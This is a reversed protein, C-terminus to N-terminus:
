REDISPEVYREGALRAIRENLRSLRHVGSIHDVAMQFARESGIICLRGKARTMATYILNRQLLKFHHTAIALVVAPFESGQSKHVSISWALTLNDLDDKEYRVSRMDYAVTVTGKHTDIEEIVGVDGNFVELDYNNRTQMVKEGVYLTTKGVRVHNGRGSLREQIAANIAENGLTGRHTPCLIQIDRIPDLGFAKPMRDTVVKVVTRLADEPDDRRIFFYEGEPHSPINPLHGQRVDHSAVVISSAEGQRFIRNLNASPVIQSRILEAFVEGAGVPPLQDADGVFLIQTGPSVARMLCCGLYQDLMSSEDIIILDCELPSVRDRLFGRERPDYELLRHITSADSGTSESLRYAARGTPAALLVRAKHYQAHAVLAKIITTKGTGPGGTLVSLPHSSVTRLAREQEESLAFPFLKRLRLLAADDIPPLPIDAHLVDHILSATEYEEDFRRRTYIADGPGAGGQDRILRGDQILTQITPYIELDDRRLLAETRDHLEEEPLYVHGELQAQHLVHEIAAAIRRVDTPGIGTKQAIKDAAFFGIGRIDHALQYPNNKVISVAMQGYHRYIRNAFVPSIDHSQLYVMIGRVAEHERWAEAISESRKKGIGPIEQLREPYENLITVTKDGFHKVIRQAFGKGVGKVLDSALFRILGEQTSPLLRDIHTAEIQREGKRERVNGQLRIHEDILLGAGRVVATHRVENEARVIVVQFERDDSEYRIHEVNGEISIDPTEHNNM